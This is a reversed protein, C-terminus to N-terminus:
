VKETQWDWLGLNGGWNPHNVTISELKKLATIRQRWPLRDQFNELGTESLIVKCDPNIACIDKIEPMLNPSLEFNAHPYFSIGVYHTKFPYKKLWDIMGSGWFLTLLAKDNEPMLAYVYQVREAINNSVWDGNVENGIEWFSCIDGFKKYLMEAKYYLQDNSLGREGYSDQIQICPTVYKCVMRVTDILGNIQDAKDIVIRATYNKNKLRELKKELDEDYLDKITIGRIM